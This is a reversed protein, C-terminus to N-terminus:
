DCFSGHLSIAKKKEEAIFLFEKLRTLRYNALAWYYWLFDEYLIYHNCTAVLTESEFGFYGRLLAKKQSINEINNESLLSALDFFENNTGACEYDILSLHYDKPNLILNGFVIDNHSFVQKENEINKEVFARIKSEKFSSLEKNAEKKYTDFRKKADFSAFEKSVPLSHLSKLFLGIQLLEAESTKAGLFNIGESHRYLLTMTEEDIWYPEPSLGAKSTEKVAILENEKNYLNFDNTKKIRIVSDDLRIVVNGLGDSYPYILSPEKKFISRYTQIAIIEDHASPIM